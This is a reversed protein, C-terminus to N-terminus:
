MLPTSHHLYEDRSESGDSLARHFSQDDLRHVDLPDGAVLDDDGSDGIGFGIGDLVVSYAVEAYESALAHASLDSRVHLVTLGGNVDHLHNIEVCEDLGAGGVDLGAPLSQYVDLPCKLVSLVHDGDVFSRQCELELFEHGKGLLLSTDELEFSRDASGHGDDVQAIVCQCSLLDLGDM